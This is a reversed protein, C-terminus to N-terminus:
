VPIQIDALIAYWILGKPLIARVTAIRAASVGMGHRALYDFFTQKM